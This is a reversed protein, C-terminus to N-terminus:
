IYDAIDTRGRVGYKKKVAEIMWQMARARVANDNAGVASYKRYVPVMFKGIADGIAEGSQSESFVKGSKSEVYKISKKIGANLADVAEDVMRDKAADEFYLLQWDDADRDKWQECLVEMYAEIVDERKLSKINKADFKVDIYKRTDKAAGILHSCAYSMDIFYKKLKRDQKIFNRAAAKEGSTIPWLVKDYFERFPRIFSDVGSIREKASGMEVPEYRRELLSDLEQIYSEAKTSCASNKCMKKYISMVTAYYRDEDESKLGPYEEDVIGKAKKWNEESEPGKVTEPPMFYVREPFLFTVRCVNGGSVFRRLKDYLVYGWFGLGWAGFFM